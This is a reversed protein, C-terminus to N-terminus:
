EGDGSTFYLTATGTATIAAVHTWASPVTFVNVTGPLIPTDTVAAEVAASTGFAIFTAANAALSTVMIQRGAPKSMAVNGTTGTVALSVTAGPTFPLLM